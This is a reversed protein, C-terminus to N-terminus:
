ATHVQQQAGSCRSDCITRDAAEGLGMMTGAQSPAPRGGPTQQHQQKVKRRFTLLAGTKTPEGRTSYAEGTLVQYPRPDKQRKFRKRSSGHTHPPKLGAPPVRRQGGSVQTTTRIWRGQVTAAEWTNSLDPSNQNAFPPKKKEETMEANLLEQKRNKLFCRKNLESGRQEDELIVFTRNSNRLRPLRPSSRM